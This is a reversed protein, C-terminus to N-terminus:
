KFLPKAEKFLAKAEEIKKENGIVCLNNQLVIAEVYAVLGKIDNKTTNILQAKEYQYDAVTRNCLYANLARYGKNAPSKPFDFTGVAGIIYKLMEEESADFNKLYEIIGKYVDLTNQLNPDRYSVFYTSGDYGFGCMCGYAGGLVRVKTWLYDTRVANEFVNLAGTYPLGAKKFNGTLAVYQVDIPAKFGENKQEPVFKFINNSREQESLNNILKTISNKFIELGENSGTFSSLMNEKTFIYKSLQNFKDVLDDYKEDYSKLLDNLIDFYEIGESLEKYYSSPENYSLARNLSRVHGSRILQQQMSNMAMTLVEKIRNKMDYNTSTVIENILDICVDIKDYLCSANFCFYPTYDINSVPCIITNYIGGTNIMTEQELNDYSFQKTDLEGIIAKYLGIYPVLDSPINKINFLLKIYAIGNTSYDHFLVKTNNINFIENNIELVDSSLDEKKLLPITDLDEKKDPAAQYEKLLKTSEIISEIQEDSLSNKYNNLKEKLANEKETQVTLSPECIIIAKHTNNLLYKEILKEFYNTNINVRLSNFIDTFEFSSWPDNEDYLWTSLSNITYIIGKSTGGYDAERLKFEYMNLAAELAKKNIGNKVFDSLCNEIISVFEDKKDPNTNKTIVSFVPQLVGSDFDGTVVDGIKNDLLAKKLPAAASKLLVQTLIDFGMLDVMPTKAPLAVNYSMLTKSDTGQEASIPYYITKERLKEFPQQVTLESNIDIKDFGSLYEEDLWNLINEMNCNGYLIIYSNSPHYYKKHFEKFKDYTLTPIFDPNGGSEVGYATDPFLSNLSERGLIGDPSSFAGKMENYVVGNYILEGDKSDLEYHWGEQKFIEEKKHINPYLVADMYVDMLNKFDKENCSAVPYITKDPFTMANLFTNLSSKMLEVFPEKVPFKRSGCLVSHELIHPLGTDDYPPTRFGIAFSKNEDDNKLLLVKAGSKEHNLLVGFSNIDKLEKENIIKYNKYM